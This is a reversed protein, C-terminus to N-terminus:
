HCFAWNPGIKYEADMPCKMKLRVGAERIAWVILEGVTNANELPAEFQFEDHPWLMQACEIKERRLRQHVLVMAVKMLIAGDGQLKVNLAAHESRVPAHRGDLLPIFGRESACQKCWTALQALAPLKKEFKARYKSGVHDFWQQDKTMRRRRATKRYGPQKAAFWRQKKEAFHALQAVSLSPHTCIVEGIHLDGAGYLYAYTVTKSQDRTWLGGAEMNLTHIDGTVVEKAYAGGDYLALSHGLQRLELGSADGGIQVWGEQTPGWLERMEWGYRGEYGRLEPNLVKPCATQNPQQHSARGTNTGLHNIQPHIIGPTRSAHARRTWDTLHKLRTEAMQARLLLGAEPFPLPKLVEETISPNGDPASPTPDTRPADWDYKEKLRAAVQLASGPNFPHEKTKLPGAELRARLKAPADKKRPYQVPLTDAPDYYYQPTKMKQIIPPFVVSLQDMAKAKELEMWQIMKEAGAVDIRVGNAQMDACIQAVLHELKLPTKFRMLKPKIYKFIQAQVECDRICREEMLPTWKTWDTIETGVKPIGLFNGWSEVSNGGFPHHKADPYLVKSGVLTDFVRGKVTNNYLRRLVPLDYGIVNHGIIGDASRLIQWGEAITDEDDNRRFVQVEGKPYSRLVLLHVRDCETHLVGAKDIQIENLNNGEIDIVFCNM